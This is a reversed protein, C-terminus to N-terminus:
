HGTLAAFEALTETIARHAVSALVPNTERYYHYAGVGFCLAWGRGRAWTADDVAVAERFAARSDEAFVTWAPMVDCAPDGVGLAGFDIVASLRGDRALLNGPLLDSHLWVPAADWQPQALAHEWAATALAGDLTADAHLDAIERRVGADRALLPGGRYSRPGDTADVGRLATVFGGLQRAAAVPDGVPRSHVDSGDLWRFVSWPLEFSEDPVGLGVPEPIVLPLHPALHPLWRQEKAIGSAADPIRPLRVVLDDGLRFMANDTGASPVRVLRLGAWAPFQRAILRAVLATDIDIEDAHMRTGTM